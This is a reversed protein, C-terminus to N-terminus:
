AVAIYKIYIYVPQTGLDSYRRLAEAGNMLTIQGTTNIVSYHVATAESRADGIQEQRPRPIANGDTDTSPMQMVFNNTNTSSNNFGLWVEVTRINGMTNVQVFMLNTVVPTAPNLYGPVFTAITSVAANAGPANGLLDADISGTAGNLATLTEASTPAVGGGGTSVPDDTIDYATNAQTTGAVVKATYQARTLEVVKRARTTVLNDIGTLLISDASGVVNGTTTAINTNTGNIVFGTIQGSANTLIDDDTILDSTDIIATPRVTNGPVDKEIWESATTAGTTQTAGRYIYYSEVEHTPVAPASSSTEYVYIQNTPIGLFEIGSDEQSNVGLTGKIANYQALTLTVETAIAGSTGFSTTQSTITGGEVLVSHHGVTLGAGDPIVFFSIRDNVAFPNGVPEQPFSLTYTSSSADGVAIYTFNAGSVAVQSRSTSPTSASIDFLVANAVVGVTGPRKINTTDALLEAYTDAKFGVGVQAGTVQHPNTTNSAHTNLNSTNTTIQAVEADSVFATRKVWNATSTIQIGSNAQINQLSEYIGRDDGTSVLVHQGTNYAAGASYETITRSQILANVRAATYYLNTTGENIDDTTTSSLDPTVGSVSVARFAGDQGLFQQQNGSTTNIGLATDVSADLDATNLKLDLADQTATSVPKNADTTNDVDSLGVEAKTVAHPNGTVLGIHTTSATVNTNANVRAETYYLNSTGEAVNDTTSNGALATTATTGIALDSTGAGIDARVQAPTLGLGVTGNTQAYKPYNGVTVSSPIRVDNFSTPVDTLDNYSGSFGQPLTGISATTSTGDAARTTARIDGNVITISVVTAFDINATADISTITTGDAKCLRAGAGDPDTTLVFRTAIDMVPLQTVNQAM